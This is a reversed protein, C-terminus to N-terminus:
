HLLVAPDQPPEGLVRYLRPRLASDGADPDPPPETHCEHVPRQLADGVEQIVRPTESDIQSRPLHTLQVPPVGATISKLPPGIEGSDFDPAIGARHLCLEPFVPKHLDGAALRLTQPTECPRLHLPTAHIRRRV